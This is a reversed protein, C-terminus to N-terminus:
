NATSAAPAAEGVTVAVEGSSSMSGGSSKRSKPRDRLRLLSDADKMSKRVDRTAVFLIDDVPLLSFPDELQSAVEDCGLMLVAMFFYPFLGFWYNTNWLGFPALLLWIQIFGTSLLTLNYPMANYRIRSCFGAEQSARILNQDMIQMIDGPLNAEHLIQQMRIYVVQRSKPGYTYLHLEEEDLLAEAEPKLRKQQTVMAYISYQWVTAWRVLEDVLARDRFYTHAQICLRTAASVSSGFSCRAQWWRDYARSIRLSLILSMAFSALRFVNYTVNQPDFSPLGPCCTLRLQDWLTILVACLMCMSLPLKINWLIHAPPGIYAFLAQWYRNQSRYVIWEKKRLKNDVTNPRPKYLAREWLRLLPWLFRPWSTKGPELKGWLPKFGVRRAM